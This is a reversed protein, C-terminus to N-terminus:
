LVGGTYVTYLIGALMKMGVLSASLFIIAMSVDEWRDQCTLIIKSIM